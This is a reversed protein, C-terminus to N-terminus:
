FYCRCCSAIGDFRMIQAFHLEIIHLFDTSDAIKQFIFCLSKKSIFEFPNMQKQEVFSAFHGIFQDFNQARSNTDNM